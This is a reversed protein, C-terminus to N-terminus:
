ASRHSQHRRDLDTVRSIDRLISWALISVISGGVIRPVGSIGIGLFRSILPISGSAGQRGYPRLPADNESSLPFVSHRVICSLWLLLRFFSGM